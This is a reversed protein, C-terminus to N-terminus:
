ALGPIAGVDRIDGANAPPNKEVLAVQSALYKQQLMNLLSKQKSLIECWVNGLPEATFFRRGICSVHTQDRPQSSGRSFPM